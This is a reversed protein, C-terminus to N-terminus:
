TFCRLFMEIVKIFHLPGDGPEGCMNLLTAKDLNNRANFSLYDHRFLAIDLGKLERNFYVQDLTYYFPYRTDNRMSECVRIFFSKVRPGLGFMFFGSTAGFQANLPTDGCYNSDDPRGEPYIIIADQLQPVQITRVPILDLDLYVCTQGSCDYQFPFKYRMSMGDLMNIPQATAIIRVDPAQALSTARLVDASAYDCLICYVDGQRLSKTKHLARYLFHPLYCYPNVKADGLSFLISYFITM